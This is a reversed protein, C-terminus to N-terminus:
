IREVAEEGIGEDRRVRDKLRTLSLTCRECGDDDRGTRRFGDKNSKEPSDLSGRDFDDRGLESLSGVVESRNTDKVVKCNGPTELRRCNESM